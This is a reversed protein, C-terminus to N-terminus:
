FNHSLCYLAATEARLIRPGLSVVQLEPLSQLIEVEGTDFGGEPGILYVPPPWKAVDFSSLMPADHRELAAVLIQAPDFQQVFRDLPCLDHLVPLDLRECQEAAEIIQVEFRDPKIDRVVSRRMVLPYFDTCGLEVAKEILFDMRDKKLPSFALGVRRSVPQFERLLKDVSVASHKKSVVQLHCLYEGSQDGFVRLVAGDELRLVHRLYHSQAESLPVVLGTQLRDLVYLRPLHHPYSTMFLLNSTETLFFLWM